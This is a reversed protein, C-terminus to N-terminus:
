REHSDGRFFVDNPELNAPGIKWWAKPHKQPQSGSASPPRCPPTSSWIPDLPRFRRSSDWRGLNGMQLHYGPCKVRSGGKVPRSQDNRQTTVKGNHTGLRSAKCSLSRYENQLIDRLEPIRCTFHWPKLYGYCRLKPTESLKQPLEYATYVQVPYLVFMQMYRSLVLSGCNRFQVNRFQVYVM